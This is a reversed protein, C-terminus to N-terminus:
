AAPHGWWTTLNGNQCTVTVGRRDGFWPHGTGDYRYTRQGNTCVASVGYRERGSGDCWMNVATGTRWNTHCRGNWGAPVSRSPADPVSMTSTPAPVTAHSRAVASVIPVTTVTLSMVAMVIRRLKM